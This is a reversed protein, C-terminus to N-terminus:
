NFFSFAKAQTITVRFDYPQQISIKKLKSGFKWENFSHSIEQNIPRGLHRRCSSAFLLLIETEPAEFSRAFMSYEYRPIPSETPVIIAPHSSVTLLVLKMDEVSSKEEWESPFKSISLGLTKYVPDQVISHQCHLLVAWPLCTKLQNQNVM